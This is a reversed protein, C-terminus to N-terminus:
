LKNGHLQLNEFILSIFKKKLLVNLEKFRYPVLNFIEIVQLTTDWLANEMKNEINTVETRFTHREEIIKNKQEIAEDGSFIGSLVAEHLNDLKKDLRNIKM